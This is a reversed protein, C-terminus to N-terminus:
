QETINRKGDFKGQWKPVFTDGGYHVHRHCNPCLAISNEISDEGGESLPIKHHVELYPTKDVKYFPAPNKCHECIGNARYLAEAAVYPNRKYVSTKM